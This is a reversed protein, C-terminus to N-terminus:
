LRISRTIHLCQKTLRYFKRPSSSSSGEMSGTVINRKFGRNTSKTARGNELSSSSVTHPKPIDRACGIELNSEMSKRAGGEPDFIDLLESIRKSVRRGGRRMGGVVEWEQPDSELEEWEKVMESVDRFREM